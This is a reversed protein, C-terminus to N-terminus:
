CILCLYSGPWTNELHNGMTGRAGVTQSRPTLMHPWFNPLVFDQVYEIIFGPDKLCSEMSRTIFFSYVFVKLNPDSRVRFSFQKQTHALYRYMQVLRLIILICALLGRSVTLEDDIMALFSRSLSFSHVLLFFSSLSFMRFGIDRRLPRGSVLM